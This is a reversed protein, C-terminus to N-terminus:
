SEENQKDSIVEEPYKGCIYKRFYTDPHYNERLGYWVDEPVGTYRRVRGDSSLKVELLACQPDYGLTEILSSYFSIYYITGDEMYFDDVHEQLLKKDEKVNIHIFSPAQTM